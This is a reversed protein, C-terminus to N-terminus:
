VFFKVVKEYEEKLEYICGLNFYFDVYILDVFLGKKFIEEVKEIENKVYYIIGKMLIIEVDNKIVNDCKNIVELVYDLEGKEVFKNFFERIREIKSKINENM